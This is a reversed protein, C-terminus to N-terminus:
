PHPVGEGRQRSPGAAGARADLGTAAGSADAGAPDRCRGGSRPGAADGCRGCPPADARKRGSKSRLFDPQFTIAWTRRWLAAVLQEAGMPKTLCDALMNPTATWRLSIGKGRFQQKLWAVTFGLSRRSGLSSTDSVVKDHTDKADVVATFETSELSGMANAKDMPRGRLEAVLGRLLQAADVMEDLSYTEVVYSSNGVRKLRHSRWDWLAIRGVGGTLAQADAFFILYGAQSHVKEDAGGAPV